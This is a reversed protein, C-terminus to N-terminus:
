KTALSTRGTRSRKTSNLSKETLVKRKLKKSGKEEMSADHPSEELGGPATQIPCYKLCSKRFADQRHKDVFQRYPNPHTTTSVSQNNLLDLKIQHPIKTHPALVEGRVVFMQITTSKFGSIFTLGLGQGRNKVWGKWDLHNGMSKVNIHMM